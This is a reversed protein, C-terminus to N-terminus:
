KENAYKELLQSARDWDYFQRLSPHMNQEQGFSLTFIEAYAETHNSFSIDRGHPNNETFYEYGLATVAEQYEPSKSVWGALDDLKHGVEHICAMEHSCWILGSWTNYIGTHDPSSPIPLFFLPIIILVLLWRKM